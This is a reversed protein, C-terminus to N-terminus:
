PATAERGDSREEAPRLTRSLNFASNILGVHSFAQPFNGVLRGARPDYEEALLGVDNRLALLREYLATGEAFRGALAYNDVLWFSCALFAGEGPPLGDSESDDDQSYRMVFGDRLLEREIAAVTGRVRPDTAPLFGVLPILLTSADLARSGYSQAFTNRTADFARECVEAHIRDRLERWRELPGALGMTEIARVGRDFAVWAMVKSHTFHRPEGRIEWIGRDPSEWRREVAAIVASSLAWEDETLELGFRHSTFLLDVVEGYVDLQFQGDAENGTRVPQSAEYGRLWPLELEPLRRNGKLGYVIQLDGPAGAVARLLWERWDAAARIYGASLFAFLTFTADRLWCFRYDWNRVGGLSEPLSTTPAAVIGGTLDYTLARLTILSREVAEAYPGDYSCSKAWVSWARATREIADRSSRAPPQPRYSPFYTAEFEVREGAGVVFRAVHTMADPEFGVDAALLMADPGAIALLGDDVRRMWPVVSGYDFRLVYTARMAVNGRVGSVRRVIRSNDEFPLSMCDTLTVAGSRTEFTTDLVLTGPRYARTTRVVPEDPAIQWCGNARTGLLAAFAAPSDFRPVCLWDISGDIGVLAATANDGILAYDEIRLGMVGPKGTRRVSGVGVSPRHEFALRRSRARTRTRMRGHRTAEGACLLDLISSFVTTTRLPDLPGAIIAITAIRAMTTAAARYAHCGHFPECEVVVIM